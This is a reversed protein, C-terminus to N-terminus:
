KGQGYDSVNKNIWRVTSERESIIKVVRGAICSGPYKGESLETFLAPRVEATGIKVFMDRANALFLELNKPKINAKSSILRFVTENMEEIKRIEPIIQAPELAQAKQLDNLAEFYDQQYILLSSRNLFLDLFPM